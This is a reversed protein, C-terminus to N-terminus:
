RCIKGGVCKYGYGGYCQIYTEKVYLEYAYYGCAGYGYSIWCGRCPDWFCTQTCNSYNTNYGAQFGLEVTCDGDWDGAYLYGYTGNSFSVTGIQVAKGELFFRHGAYWNLDCLQEKFYITKQIVEDATFYDNGMVLYLLEVAEPRITIATNVITTGLLITEDRLMVKSVAKARIFGTKNINGSPIKWESYQYELREVNENPEKVGIIRANENLIFNADGAIFLSGDELTCITPEEAIAFSCISFLMVAVLAFITVKKM